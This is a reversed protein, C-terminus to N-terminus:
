ERENAFFIRAFQDNDLRLVNKLIEMESAKFESKGLIKNRLAHRTIGCWNCIYEKKLGSEDILRTLEDTRVM